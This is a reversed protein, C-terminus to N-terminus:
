LTYVMHRMSHGGWQNDDKYVFGVANYLAEAKPNNTDVLLGTPLNMRKGKEITARLLLKAIGKGRHEKSVCLSDIYLEGADTEDPMDSFDRGFAAKAGEIFAKRLTRLLSGDYSVCVGVVKNDPTIAVLTNLYSYQSDTREVLKKMLNFFDDLTHQPGAFWQCCEYNMAEMIMEAIVASQELRASVVRVKM